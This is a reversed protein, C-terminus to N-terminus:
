SITETTTMKSYTTSDIVTVPALSAAGSGIIRNLSFEHDDLNAIEPIAQQPLYGLQEPVKQLVPVSIGQQGQYPAPIQLLRDRLNLCGCYSEIVLCV